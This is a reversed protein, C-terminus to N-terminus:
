CCHDADQEDVVLRQNAGPEPRDELFLGVELHDTFSSVSAFCELKGGSIGVDVHHQHVDAHGDQVSQAGGPFQHSCGGWWADDDERREVRVFVDVPGQLRTGCAKEQLVRRRLPEDLGDM